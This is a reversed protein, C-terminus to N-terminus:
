SKRRIFTTYASPFVEKVNRAAKAAAPRGPYKGRWVVWLGSGFFDYDDSRLIGADRGHARLARARAEAARRSSPAAVVVTYAEKGRPWLPVSRAAQAETRATESRTSATREPPTAAALSSGGAAKDADDELLGITIFVAAGVVALVAIVIAVPVGWGPPRAVRTTVGTGCELCWDQEPAMPADCRPCRRTPPSETATASV